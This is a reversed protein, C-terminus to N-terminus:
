IFREYLEALQKAIKNAEFAELVWIRGNKGLQERKKKDVILKELADSLAKPNKQEVLIGTVQNKVIEPISGAFTSVVPKECAMAEVMSYGFQEAWFYTEVSPLCFIDALNHVECMQSYPLNGLFKVKSQINLGNTLDKIEAQMKSVGTGVVLLQVNKHSKLILAFANLLDFIGKEPTLRGVFLIKTTADDDVGFRNTAAKEIPKFKECDLGAPIVSIKDSSVGETLLAEKAKKTIAVLHTVHQRNYEQIKLYPKGRVNFPINEWQTALTPKGTKVAQYTFPYWIDASHIIDLDKTLKNLGIVRLNWSEFNYKTIRGVASFFPKLRGKTLTRLNHGARIPFTIESLQKEKDHTTIGIPEFGFNALKEFYQAEYPNLNAGRLIGVKHL